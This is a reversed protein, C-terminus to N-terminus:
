QTPYFWLDNLESVTNTFRYGYGGLLWINNSPEKCIAVRSRAGDVWSWEGSAPSYEREDNLYVPRLRPPM